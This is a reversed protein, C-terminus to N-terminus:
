GSISDRAFQGYLVKVRKIQMYILWFWGKDTAIWGTLEHKSRRNVGDYAMERLLM